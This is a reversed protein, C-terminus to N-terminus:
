KLRSIRSILVPPRLSENNDPQINILKVIDMGKVVKGFAAFGQGDPNATGGYDYRPQDGICIFFETNASGPTSRALSIAGDAHTLTTIKTNEHPIGALSVAKKNNTEWIGGQIIETKFSASSQNEKNLTRYFSSNKFIGADVYSLFASASLPARDPYVEVIIDGMSTEIMVTPHVYKTQNCQIFGLLVLILLIICSYSIKPLRTNM